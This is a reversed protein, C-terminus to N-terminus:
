PLVLGKERKANEADHRNLDAARGEIECGLPPIVFGTAM